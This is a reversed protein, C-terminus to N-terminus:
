FHHLESHKVFRIVFAPDTAEGEVIEHANYHEQFSVKFEECVFICTDELCFINRLRAFIPTNCTEDVALLLFCGVQYRTGFIDVVTGIKFDSGAYEPWESYFLEVTAIDLDDRKVKKSAHFEFQTSEKLGYIGSEINKTFENAFHRGMSRAVNKFNLTNALVIKFKKIFHKL